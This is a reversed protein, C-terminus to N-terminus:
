PANRRSMRGASDFRPPSGCPVWGSSASPWAAPGSPRYGRHSSGRERIAGATTAGSRASRWPAMSLGITVGPIELGLDFLNQVLLAFTGAWVGAAVASRLAGVRAPTFAFAFAIMGLAGAPVGWESLWQAPFSEAHTFVINGPVTRYAPFVSEFAGRGIGLWAYDAVLPKVRLMMELKQFDKSYLEAWTSRTGGLVAFLGGAGLAAALLAMASRSTMSFGRGTSREGLRLLVALCAIGIILALLGGRSGSTVNVGVLTAVGLGILWRPVVPKQM